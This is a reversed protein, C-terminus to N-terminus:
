TARVQWQVPTVPPAAFIHPFNEKGYRGWHPRAGDVDTFGYEDALEWSGYVGGSKRAVNPDAALAAVARGVFCPTESGAFGYGKAEANAEAAERWREETTGFHELIAETRMFGPTVAVASAGLPKLEHALAYALRKIATVALDWYFQGRYDITEGEAVEVILGSKQRAMQKAAHRCTVVHPWVWADVMARGQDLPLKWMPQWQKVEPGTLVNVVVDVRRQEKVVRAFLATVEADDGHDVRVPIGQGGAQTVLEATEEITEPRAAYHHAHTRPQERSSRGTCYVTAGAEGLMRAIGRGAGRTAGAVIAVKGALPRADTTAAAGNAAAPRSSTRRRAPM